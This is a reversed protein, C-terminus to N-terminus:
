QQGDMDTELSTQLEKMETTMKQLTKISYDELLSSLKKSLTLFFVSLPNAVAMPLTKFDNIRDQLEGLKFEYPKWGIFPFSKRFGFRQPECVLFLIHHLNNNVGRKAATKIAAYRGGTLNNVLIKKYHIGKHKFQIPLRTPLPTAMLKVLKSQNEVSLAKVEKITCGLIACTRKYLLDFRDELTEPEEDSYELYHVFNELTIKSWNEPINM